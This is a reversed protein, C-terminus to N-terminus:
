DKDSVILGTMEECELRIPKGPEDISFKVKAIKSDHAGTKLANALQELQELGVTFSLREKQSILKNVVDPYNVDVSACEQVDIATGDHVAALKIQKDVSDRTLNYICDQAMGTPVRLLVLGDTAIAANELIRVTEKYSKAYIGKQKKAIKLLAKAHKVNIM